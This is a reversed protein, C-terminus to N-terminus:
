SNTKVNTEVAITWALVQDAPAAFLPTNIQLNSGVITATLVAATGNIFSPGAASGASAYAGLGDGAASFTFEQYATGAPAAGHVGATQNAWARVKATVLGVFPIPIQIAPGVVNVAQAFKKVQGLTVIQQDVGPKAWFGKNNVASAM